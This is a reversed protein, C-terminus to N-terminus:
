MSGRTLDACASPATASSTTANSSTSPTVPTAVIAYSASSSLTAPVAAEASGFGDAGIAIEPYRNTPGVVEGQAGCSGSHLSWTYLGGAQTNGISLLVHAWGPTQSPTVAAAGNIPTDNVTASGAGRVPGLWLPTPPPPPLVGLTNPTDYDGSSACAMCLVAVFAAAVLSGFRIPRLPDPDTSPAIPMEAPNNCNEPVDGTCRRADNM